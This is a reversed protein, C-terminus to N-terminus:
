RANLYCYTLEGKPISYAEIITVAVHVLAVMSVLVLFAVMWKMDYMAKWKWLFVLLSIFNFLLVFGSPHAPQQSIVHSNRGSHCLWLYKSKWTILVICIVIWVVFFSVFYMFMKILGNCTKYYRYQFKVLGYQHLWFFNLLIIEWLWHWGTLKM